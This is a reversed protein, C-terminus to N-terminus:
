KGASSGAQRTGKFGEGTRTASAREKVMLVRVGLTSVGFLLAFAEEVVALMVALMATQEGIAQLWVHRSATWWMRCQHQVVVM